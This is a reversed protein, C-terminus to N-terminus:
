QDAIYKNKIVRKEKRFDRIAHFLVYLRFAINKESIIMFNAPIWIKNRKVYNCHNCSVVMNEDIYKGGKSIPVVHEIVMKINERKCYQCVSGDRDYIRKRFGVKTCDPVKSITFKRNMLLYLDIRVAHPSCGFTQSAIPIISGMNKGSDFLEKVFRRREEINPHAM